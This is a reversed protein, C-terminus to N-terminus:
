VGSGEVFSRRSACMKMRREEAKDDNEKEKERQKAVSLPFFVGVDVKSSLLANM